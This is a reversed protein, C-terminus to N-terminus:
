SRTFPRKPAGQLPAMPCFGAIKRTLLHTRIVIIYIYIIYIIIYIYIYMIYIYTYYIYIHICVDWTYIGIIDWNYDM